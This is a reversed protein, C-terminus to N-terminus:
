DAFALRGAPTEFEAVFVYFDGGFNGALRQWRQEWAKGFDSRRSRGAVELLYEEDDVLYDAGSGPWTLDRIEHGGAHYLALGALAIAALEVRRAQEYTRRLRQLDMKTVKGFEISMELVDDHFGPVNMVTLEFEFPAKKGLDAIVAATALRMERWLLHPHFRPLDVLSTDVRM